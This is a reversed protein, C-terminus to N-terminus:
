HPLAAVFVALKTFCLIKKFLNVLKGRNVRGVDM